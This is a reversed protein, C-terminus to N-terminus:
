VLNVLHLNNLDQSDQLDQPFLFTRRVFLLTRRVTNALPVRGRATLDGAYGARRTRIALALSGGM